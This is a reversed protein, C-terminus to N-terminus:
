SEASLGLERFTDAAFGVGAQYFVDFVAEIGAAELVVCEDPFRAAASVRGRYGAMRLHQSIAICAEPNPLTLMVLKVNGLDVRAWLEPDTADAEFVRRRADRCTVCRDYDADIGIISRGFETAVTEYAGSGVRGMGVIVVEASGLDLLQEEVLRESREWRSLRGALAQYIRQARDNLPAGVLFSISLALALIILWERGLWGEGAALAAVILGFESYNALTLSSFLASRARMKFRLLLWEFLAGKAPALLVLGLAIAFMSADPLGSMGVNVFFATLFLNKFGLLTDALEDAKPHSGLVAGAVLPGLDPKLDLLGFCRASGLAVLVGLLVLLEGHRCRSMVWLLGRRVLPLALLLLAWLSPIKGTSVTLFSIAFVDQVILLGIAIVGYLAAMQQRQELVKVAFVTSSFSLAFGILLCQALGLGRIGPVELAALGYLLAAFAATSIMSHLSATGWIVPRLLSQLKLKLGISFLLLYVGLDSALSLYEPAEIGAGRLAFGAVLFGVLPPLGVQFVAFGLAFAVLILLPLLVM